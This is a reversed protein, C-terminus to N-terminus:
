QRAPLWLLEVPELGRLNGIEPDGTLLPVRREIALQVAFADGLAIPHRAKLVAAERIRHRTVEVPTVPFTPRSVGTWFRDALDLGRTRAIRYFVEGLNLNSIYCHSGEDAVAAALHEEVLGAGPENQFWALLAFSDLCVSV